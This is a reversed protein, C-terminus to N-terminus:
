LQGEDAFSYYGKNTVIVHDLLQIDFMKAAEKLKRTIEIDAGSPSLNGSPHNHSVILGSALCGIAHKMVVRIDVLCSSISGISLLLESKITNKRDLFLIYFHETEEHGIREKLYQASDHSSTIKQQLITQQAARIKLERFALIKDAQASSMSLLLEVKSASFLLSSLNCNFHLMASTAAKEGIIQTLVAKDTLANM